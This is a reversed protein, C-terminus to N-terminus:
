KNLMALIEKGSDSKNLLEKLLASKIRVTSFRIKGYELILSRINKDIEKAENVTDRIDKIKNEMIKQNQIDDKNVNIKMSFEFGQVYVSFYLKVNEFYGYCNVRTHLNRIRDDKKLDRIINKLSQEDSLYDFIINDTIIETFYLVGNTEINCESESLKEVNKIIEQIESYHKIKGSTIIMENIENNITLIKNYLRNNIELLRGLENELSELKDDIYLEIIDEKKFKLDLVSSTQMSESTQLTIDPTSVKKQSAKKPVRKSQTM